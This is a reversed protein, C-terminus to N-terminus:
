KFAISEPDDVLKGGERLTPIYTSSSETYSCRDQNGTTKVPVMVGAIM